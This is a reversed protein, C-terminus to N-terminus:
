KHKRYIMVGNHEHVFEYGVAILRMADEVTTASAVYFNENGVGHYYNKWIFM